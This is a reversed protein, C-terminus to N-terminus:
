ASDHCIEVDAIEGDAIAITGGAADIQRSDRGPDCRLSLAGDLLDIVEGPHEALDDVRRRRHCGVVLVIRLTRRDREFSGLCCGDQM